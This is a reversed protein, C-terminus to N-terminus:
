LDVLHLKAGNLIAGFDGNKHTFLLEIWCPKGAPAFAIRYLTFIAKSDLQFYFGHFCCDSLIM